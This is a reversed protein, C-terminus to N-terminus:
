QGIMRLMIQILLIEGVAACRDEGELDFAAHFFRMGKDIVELNKRQKCVYCVDLAKHDMGCGCGVALEAFVLQEILADFRIRDPQRDAGLM